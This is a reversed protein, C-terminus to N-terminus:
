AAAPAYTSGSTASYSVTTPTSPFYASLNPLTVQPTGNSAFYGALYKLAFVIIGALGLWLGVRASAGGVVGLVLILGAVLLVPTWSSSSSSPVNVANLPINTM